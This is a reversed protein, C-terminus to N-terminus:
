EERKFIHFGRASMVIKSVEGVKLEFIVNEIEPLLDGRKIFGLDGGFKSSADASYRAAFAAFDAGKDLEEKIRRAVEPDTVLIQRVRVYGERKKEIIDEILRSAQTAPTYRPEIELAKRFCTLAEEYRKQLVLMQGKKFYADFDKGDLAIAKDFYGIAKDIEGKRGALVGLNIYGDAHDPYKQVVDELQKIAEDLKGEGLLLNFKNYIAKFYPQKLSIAKDFQQLAKELDGQQSYIVGLANYAVADNPDEKLAKQIAAIAEDIKNERYLRIAEIVSPRFNEEEQARSVPASLIILVTTFLISTIRKLDTERMVWLYLRV